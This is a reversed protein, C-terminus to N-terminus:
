SARLTELLWFRRNMARVFKQMLYPNKKVTKEEDPTLATKRYMGSEKITGFKMWTLIKSKFSPVDKSAIKWYKWAADLIYLDSTLDDFVWFEFDKIKPNKRLEEILAVYVWQVIEREKGDFIRKGKERYRLIKWLNKSVIPKELGDVNVTFKNKEFHISAGAVTTDFTVDRINKGNLIKKIPSNRFSTPLKTKLMSGEVAKHYEKHVDNMALNFYKWLLEVWQRLELPGVVAADGSGVIFNRQDFIVEGAKGRKIVINDSELDISVDKWGDRCKLSIDRWKAMKVMAKYVNFCMHARVIWSEVSNGRMIKRALVSPEWGSVSLKDWDMMFDATIKRDWSIAMSMNYTVEQDKDLKVKQNDISTSTNTFFRMYNTDGRHFLWWKEMTDSRASSRVDREINKAAKAEEKKKKNAFKNLYAVIFILNTTNETIYRGLSESIFNEFSDINTLIVKFYEEPTKVNKNWKKDDAVFWNKFESFKQADKLISIDKYIQNFRNDKLLCKYFEDKDKENLMTTYLGNWALFVDLFNKEIKEKKEEYLEMLRDKIEKKNNKEDFVAERQVDTLVPVWDDLVLNFKKNCVLNVNHVGVDTSKYKANISLEVTGSALPPDIEMAWFYLHDAEIIVDKLVYDVWEIKVKYNQAKHNIGSIPVDHEAWDKALVIWEADCLEYSPDPDAWTPNAKFTNKLDIEDTLTQPTHFFTTKIDDLKKKLDFYKAFDWLNKYENRRTATIWTPVGIGYAKGADDLAMDGGGPRPKRAMRYAKASSVFSSTPDLKDYIDELRAKVDEDIYLNGSSLNNILDLSEKSLLTNISDINVYSVVSDLTTVIKDLHQKAQSNDVMNM